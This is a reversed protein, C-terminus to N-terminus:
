DQNGELVAILVRLLEELDAPVRYLNTDQIIQKRTQDLLGFQWANGMTVLGYFPTSNGNGEMRQDLAILETALQVFGRAMDDHKAEIILLHGNQRLYYDVKGKLQKSVNLPYEIEMVAGVYTCVELLVPAVLVERRATENNLTAVKLHAQLKEKLGKFYSLDAQSKPLTCDEIQLTYGFYALVERIPVNMEFYDRFTYSGNPDIVQYTM